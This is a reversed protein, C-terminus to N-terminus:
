REKKKREEKKREKRRESKLEKKRKVSREESGKKRERQDLDCYKCVNNFGDLCNPGKCCFSLNSNINCSISM